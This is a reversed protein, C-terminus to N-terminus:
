LVWLVNISLHVCLSRLGSCTNEYGLGLRFSVINNKTVDYNVMKLLFFLDM